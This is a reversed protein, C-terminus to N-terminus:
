MHTPPIYKLNATNKMSKTNPIYKTMFLLVKKIHIFFQIFVFAEKQIINNEIQINKLPKIACKNPSHLIVFTSEDINKLNM